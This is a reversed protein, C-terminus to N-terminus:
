RNGRPRNKYYLHREVFSKTFDNVVENILRNLDDKSSVVLDQKEWTIGQFYIGRDLRVRELLVSEFLRASLYAIYADQAKSLLIVVDYFPLPNGTAGASPIIEFGVRKLDNEIAQKIQAVDITMDINPSTVVEVNVYIKSPLNFLHDNGVWGGGRWTAIGPHNFLDKPPLEQEAPSLEQAAEGEFESQAQVTFPMWFLLAIMWLFMRMYM